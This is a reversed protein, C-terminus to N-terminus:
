SKQEGILLPLEPKGYEPQWHFVHKKFLEINKNRATKIDPTNEEVM